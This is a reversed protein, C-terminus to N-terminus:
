KIRFSSQQRILSFMWQGNLPLFANYSVQFKWYKHKSAIGCSFGTLKAYNEFILEQRRLHNYGALLSIQQNIFLETGFIIHGFLKNLENPEQLIKNGNSDYKYFQMSYPNTLDFTYLHHATISIRLPMKSPKFSTGVQLDFPLNSPTQTFKRLMFGVNKATLGITFDYKPHKYIGGWDTMLALSYFAAISSGVFKTSIGFSINSIKRAYTLGSSFDNASFQGIPNGVADRGQLTGYYLNQLNIGITGKAFPIAGAISVYKSQAFYPSFSMGFNYQHSSDLLAPNSSFYHLDAESDSINIGGLANIKASNSLQLFAYNQQGKGEYAFFLLLILILHYRM